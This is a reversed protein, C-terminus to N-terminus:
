AGRVVWLGFKVATSAETHAVFKDFFSGQKASVTRSVDAFIKRLELLQGNKEKLEVDRGELKGQMSQLAQEKAEVLAVLSRMQFRIAKM